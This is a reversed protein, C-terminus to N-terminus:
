ARGHCVFYEHGVVVGVGDIAEGGQEGAPSVLDLGRAVAFLRKLAREGEAGIQHDRVEDHGAHVPESQRARKLLVVRGRGHDDQGAVGGHVRRDRGHLTPHVVVERLGHVRAPEPGEDLLRQLLGLDHALDGQEAPLQLLGAPETPEQAGAARHLLDIM